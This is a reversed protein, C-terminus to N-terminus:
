PQKHMITINNIVFHDGRAKFQLRDIDQWEPSLRNATGKKIPFTAAHILTSEKWGELEVTAVSVWLPCFSIGLLDFPHESGASIDRGHSNMVGVLNGGGAPATLASTIFWADESWRFGAYGEPLPGAPKGHQLLDEFTITTQVPTGSECFQPSQLIPVM